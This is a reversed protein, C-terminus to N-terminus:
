DALRWLQMQPVGDSTKAESDGFRDVTASVRQRLVSFAKTASVDLPEDFAINLRTHRLGQSSAGKISGTFSYGLYRGEVRTGVSMTLYSIGAVAEFAAWSDYGHTHAVSDLAADDPVPGSLNQAQTFAERLSPHSLTTM